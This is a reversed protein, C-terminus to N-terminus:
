CPPAIWIAGITRVRLAIRNHEPVTAASVGCTRRYYACRSVLTDACKTQDMAGRSVNSNTILAGPPDPPDPSDTRRTRHAALHEAVRLVVPRQVCCMVPWRDLGASILVGGRNGTFGLVSSSESAM